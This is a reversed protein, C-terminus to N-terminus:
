ADMDIQGGAEPPTQPGEDKAVGVRAPRLLRGKLTYGVDIVQIITGGPQGTGPTEFMVEHMNPDFMEGEPNLKEIGHKEFGRLIERETAEVGGIINGFRPDINRLEDDVSELARRLNDAVDLMDKAFSTVAFKGADDREKLARRKTNEADAAVRMMQEKTSQVEAEFAAVQAELLKIKADREDEYAAEPEPALPDSDTYIREDATKEHPEAQHDEPEKQPDNM